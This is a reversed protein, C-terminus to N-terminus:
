GLYICEGQEPTDLFLIAWLASPWAFWHRSVVSYEDPHYAEPLAGDWQAAHTLRALVSEARDDDGNIRAILYEQADGLPWPAPTHVSGLAGHYVGGENADSFAFNVTARWVANDAPVFGWVPAFALPVDNADHYLHHKGHGDTAYAYLRQGTHQTIFHADIAARIADVAAILDHTIDLASLRNLTHWLLVHSSWHFPLAIPDDAPTEDTPFLWMANHKKALLADLVATVTPRLRELLANDGTESVAEALELLPFIQQDLQFGHDKIRGTALYSRGWLSGVREAQEFMWLLHGRVLKSHGMDLLLRAVYYADRNWSLPLLMHDTLICVAEGEPLPVCCNLGYVLGRRAIADVPAPLDPWGAWLRPSAQLAHHLEHTADIPMGANHQTAPYLGIKFASHTSPRSTDDAQPYTRSDNFKVSGDAQETMGRTGHITARWALTANELTVMQVPPKDYFVNTQTDPMPLPGGETLQTYACRMLRLTGTFRAYHGPQSFHWDQVVFVRGFLSVVATLGEATIGNELTLRVVPIVDELLYAERAVIPADFALGFGAQAALELRYARVADPDYRRAEDFPNASTLTLYGHEPHYANVAIIRGDANMSGNIGYGGFDLPKVGADPDLKRVRYANLTPNLFPGDVGEQQTSRADHNM